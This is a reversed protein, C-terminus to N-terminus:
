THVISKWGGAAGPKITPVLESHCSCLRSCALSPGSGASSAPFFCMTGADPVAPPGSCCGADRPERSGSTRFLHHKNKRFLWTCYFRGSVPAAMLGTRSVAQGRHWTPLCGAGHFACAESRVPGSKQRSAISEM